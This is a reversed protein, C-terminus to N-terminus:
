FATVWSAASRSKSSGARRPSTSVVVLTSPLHLADFALDVNPMLFADRDRSSMGYGKRPVHRYPPPASMGDATARSISIGEGGWLSDGCLADPSNSSASRAQLADSAV